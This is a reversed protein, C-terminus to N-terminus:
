SLTHAVPCSMERSAFSSAVVPLTQPDALLWLAILGLFVQTSLQPAYGGAALLLIAWVVPAASRRRSVTLWGILWLSVAYLPWPLYLTLGTSWIAIIGTMAPNVLHAASFALTPLAALGYPLTRRSAHGVQRYAWWFGFPSLIVLLEGANFIATAFLPPGPWRMAEFLAHDLQYGGGAVLALAPFSWAIKRNIGGAGGWTKWGIMGVATIVLLHYGVALWGESPAVLFLLSFALLGLLIFSLGFERRARWQRFAIWGVTVLALLSTFSFALQGILTLAEYAAIVLPSKPMFIALRTLTRTILWDALAAAVLWRFFPPANGLLSQDHAPSLGAARNM